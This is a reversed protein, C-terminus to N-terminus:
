TQLLGQNKINPTAIDENDAKSFLSEYNLKTCTKLIINDSAM